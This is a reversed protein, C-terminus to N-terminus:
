VVTAIRGTEKLFALAIARIADDKDSWIVAEADKTPQSARRQIGDVTSGVSAQVVLSQREIPDLLVNMEKATIWILNSQTSTLQLVRELFCEETFCPNM